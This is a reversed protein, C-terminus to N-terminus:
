WEEEEQLRLAEEAAKQKKEKSGRLYWMLQFFPKSFPNSCPKQNYM